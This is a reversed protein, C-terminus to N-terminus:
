LHSVRSLSQIPGLARYNNGLITFITINKPKGLKHIAKCCELITAGTTGIDDIVLIKSGTIASKVREEDPFHLFTTVLRRIYEPISSISFYIDSRLRTIYSQAKELIEQYEVDPMTGKYAREFRDVELGIDNVNRKILEFSLYNSSPINTNDAITQAVMRNLMSRSQPYVICNISHIKTNLKALPEQIFREFNLQLEEDEKGLLYFSKLHEMFAAKTYSDANERFEYGYLYTKSLIRSKKLSIKTSHIIDSPSDKKFDFTINDKTVSVGM